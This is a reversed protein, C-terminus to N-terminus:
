HICGKHCNMTTKQIIEYTYNYM